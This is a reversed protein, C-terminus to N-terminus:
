KKEWDTETLSDLVNESIETNSGPNGSQILKRLGTCDSIPSMDSINNDYAWLETLDGMGSVVGIDSINNDSIDLYQLQELKALASIDNINNGWLGLSKLNNLESLDSIDSIENWGLALKELGKLNSIFDINDIHDHLLSLETIGTCSAIYSFDMGKQYGVALTKLYPMYKIIDLDDSYYCDYDENRSDYRTYHDSYFSNKNSPETSVDYGTVYLKTIQALEYNYVPMNWDRNFYNSRLSSFIRSNSDIEEVAKTINIDLSVIDSMYGLYSVSRAKIHNEPASVILGDTLLLSDKTPDSGDLTYYVSCGIGGADATLIQYDSYDGSSINFVPTDVNMNTYLEAIQGSADSDKNKEAVEKAKDLEGAKVQLQILSVIDEIQVNDKANIEEFVKLADEDYGLAMLTKGEGKLADLNDDQLEQAKRFSSLASQYNSETYYYEGNKVYEEYTKVPREEQSENGSLMFAGGAAAAVASLILIVIVTIQLKKM